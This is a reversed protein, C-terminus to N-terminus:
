RVMHQEFWEVSLRDRDRWHWFLGHIDNDFIHLAYPRNRAQLAEAVELSNRPDARWDATGHMILIPPLNVQQAVLVGSRRALAAGRDRDYNPILKRFVNAEIMPRRRAELELDAFGSVTVAANVQAADRIALYVMMAGRSSGYLFVNRPDAEPLNRALAVANVVDHVDDGGFQEVGEGGDVGRYQVGIVIFGANVLPPVSNSNDPAFKGLDGNGGRLDVVVPLHGGSRIKAPKWIYAAVKLGDSGYFVARCAFPHDIMAQYEARTPMAAAFNIAPPQPVGAKAGLEAESRYDELRDAVYADYSLPHRVCPRSSILQGNTPKGATAATAAGIVASVTLLFRVM